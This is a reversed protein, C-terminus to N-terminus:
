ISYQDDKCEVMAKTNGGPDRFVETTTYDLTTQIARGHWKYYGSLFPIHCHQFNFLNSIKVNLCHILLFIFRFVTHEFKSNGVQQRKKAKVQAPPQVSLLLPRHVGHLNESWFASRAAPCLRLQM